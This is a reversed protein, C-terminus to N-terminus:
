RGRERKEAAHDPCLVRCQRRLMWGDERARELAHMRTAATFVASMAAYDEAKDCGPRDCELTLTYEGNASM